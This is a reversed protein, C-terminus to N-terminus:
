GFNERPEGKLGALLARLREEAAGIEAATDALAQQRTRGLWDRITSRSHRLESATEELRELRRNLRRIEFEGARRCPVGCYTTPRGTAAREPLPEGCKLCTLKEM